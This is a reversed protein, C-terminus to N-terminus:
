EKTFTISMNYLNVTMKENELKYGLTITGCDDSEVTITNEDAFYKGELKMKENNSLTCAIKINEEDFNIRCEGNDSKNVWTYVTIEESADSPPCVRCSSLLIVTMCICLMTVTMKRLIM